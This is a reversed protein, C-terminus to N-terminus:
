ACLNRASERAMRFTFDLGPKKLFFTIKKKDLGSAQALIGGSTNTAKCGTRLFFVVPLNSSPFNGVHFPLHYV